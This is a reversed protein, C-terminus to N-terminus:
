IHMFNKQVDKILKDDLEDELSHIKTKLEKIDEVYKQRHLTELSNFDTVLEEAKTKDEVNEYIKEQLDSIAEQIKKEEQM